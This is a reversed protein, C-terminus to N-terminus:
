GGYVFARARAWNAPWEDPHPKGPRWARLAYLRWGAEQDDKDPLPQPDAYLILRAIGAALVDDTELATWVAMSDAAVGRDQCLKVAYPRTITNTLVGLVGGGRENQWLGHAPGRGGGSLVQCRACLKSEQLGIAMLMHWAQPSSMKPPLLVLAPQIATDWVSQLLSDSM